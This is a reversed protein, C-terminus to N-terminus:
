FTIQIGGGVNRVPSYNNVESNANMSFRPDLGQRATWFAINEACFYFRVKSMLARETLKKPLTYGLMATSFNLFSADTLFRDSHSVTFQDDARWAPMNSDTNNPGWAKNWDKHFNEGKAGGSTGPPTVLTAYRTDYMRGGIQYDFNLNLDLGNWTLTTGFGGFAKAENSGQQYLTAKGFDNTTGSHKEGPKHTANSTVKGGAPSMDEDYWFLTEGKNNVGAYEACLYNFLPGGEHYWYYNEKFGGNDAIKDDPLTLIESRNVSINASIRWDLNATRIPSGALQIEIGRNRIDGINGYYGRSGMSEPVSLWFLLDKTKKSYYDVDLTIRSKLFSSEFGINTNTVTEWTINPNGMQLFTVSMNTKDAPTLSYLDTYAFNGINDNGQQGISWKLKLHDLIPSTPAMFREKSLIWALGVSWFSGWRNDKNFRSSADRRFSASLFYQENYNYTANALIGEVNYRSSNSGSAVQQDASADIEPVEIDFLGQSTANLLASRMRYYEHGVMISLNHRENYTDFYNLTQTHNQRVTESRNKFIKGGTGMTSGYFPNEVTTFEAFNLNLTSVADLKLFRCFNITAKLSGNIGHTISHSDNFHNAGLPNGQLFGTGMTIRADSGEAPAVFDPTGQRRYDYHPNGHQDTDIVPNGHEDIIRVFIPYVPAIQSTFLMLNTENPAPEESAYDMGLNNNMKGYTYGINGGLTLWKKVKYSGRVRASVREYATEVIVGQDRLYGLSAYFSGKDNSGSGSVTYEQRLSRQYAADTWDDPQVYYQRGDIGEYQYGLTCHPNLKGDIGIIQENAPVTYIQYGIYTLMQQNAKENAEAASMGQIYFYKNYFQAYVAEHYEGPDTIVDYEKVGRTNAGWRAELNVESHAHGTGGKTTVIIVGAAGRSGYLAASAADKLVTVSEIDNAPINSLSEPYPAGDVIVLPDTGAYLSSTGRITINQNDSGPAGSGGHMQLGPVQGQLTNVVNTQTRKALDDAGVVAASGTFAQRTSTGFAVVMVEDVERTDEMMVADTQGGAVDIDQPKYGIFTATLTPTDDPITLTYRGDYNTVTGTTTGPISVAAGVIPQGTAGDTVQGSLTRTQAVSVVSSLLLLLMLITVARFLPGNTHKSSYM